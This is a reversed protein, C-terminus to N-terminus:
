KENGEENENPQHNFTPILDSLREILKESTISDISEKLSSVQKTLEEFDFNNPTAIYILSNDTIRLGEESMLLEEFLKEGPRLGTFTIDIDKYPEFGSLSILQEALTLIKVPKGMDLVFIEGGKAYTAAQLVLSVAEPITMFYRIIDKHTVTVPGGEAIQKKFLPIVSGNSGLVNGFRVACYNTKTFGIQSQLMMEIYRKTAGMVNTPNVAKDTSINVFQKVEYKNALNILNFTGFINNKIAEHPSTEMLPVHKHAAAHFIIDFQYKRFISNLRKEDRITAVLVEVQIENSVSGERMARLIEQQIEYLGTENIDLLVLMKPKYKVIQRVLESGISGGSGTILISKETIIGKINTDSIVIEPRGLLDSVEVEQLSKKLSNGSLLVQSSALNKVRVGTKVAKEIVSQRVYRKSSPMAVIIEEISYKKVLVQLDAGTGLVTIGNITGSTLKENDDVYGIINWNYIPNKEIENAIFTGASGAGYILINTKAKDTYNNSTVSDAIVYRRYVIRWSVRIFLIFIHMLCIIQIPLKGNSLLSFFCSFVCLTTDAFFMPILDDISLYKLVIRSTASVKYTFFSIAAFLIFYVIIMTYSNQGQLSNFISYGSVVGSVLLYISWDVYVAFGNNIKRM